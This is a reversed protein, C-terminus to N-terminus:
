ICSEHFPSLMVSREQQHRRCESQYLSITELIMVTKELKVIAEIYLISFTRASYAPLRQGPVTFVFFYASRLKKRMFM